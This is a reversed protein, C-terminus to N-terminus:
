SIAGGRGGGGGAGKGLSAPPPITSLTPPLVLAPSFLSRPSPAPSPSLFPIRLAHLTPLPLPPPCPLPIVGEQPSGLPRDYVASGSQFWSGGWTARDLLSRRTRSARRGVQSWPAEGAGAGQFQSCACGVGSPPYVVGQLRLSVHSCSPYLVGFATEAIEVNSGLHWTDLRSEWCTNCYIQYRGCVNRAPHAPTCWKEVNGRRDPQRPLM